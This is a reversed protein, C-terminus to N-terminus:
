VLTFELNATLSNKNYFSGDRKLKKGQQKFKSTLHSCSSIDKFPTAFDEQNSIM